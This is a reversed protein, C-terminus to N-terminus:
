ILALRPQPSENLPFIKSQIPSSNLMRFLQYMWSAEGLGRQKVSTADWFNLVFVIVFIYITYLIRNLAEKM